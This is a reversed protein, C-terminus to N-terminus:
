TCTLKQTLDAWIGPFCAEMIFAVSVIPWFSRWVLPLGLKAWIETFCRLINCWLVKRCKKRGRAREGMPLPGPHPHRGGRRWGRRRAGSERGEVCSRGHGPVGNASAARRRRFAGLLLLPNLPKAATPMITSGRGNVPYCGHGRRWPSSYLVLATTEAEVPSIWKQSLVWSKPFDADESRASRRHQFQGAFIKCDDKGFM